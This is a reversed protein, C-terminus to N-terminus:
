AKKIPYISIQELDTSNSGQLADIHSTLGGNNENIVGRESSAASNADYRDLSDSLSCNQPHIYQRYNQSDALNNAGTIYPTGLTHLQISNRVGDYVLSFAAMQAGGIQASYGWRAWGVCISTNFLSLTKDQLTYFPEFDHFNTVFSSASGYCYFEYVYGRATFSGMRQVAAYRIVYHNEDYLYGDLNATPDCDQQATIFGQPLPPASTADFSQTAICNNADKVYATYSGAVLGTFTNSSHYSSGNISYTKAGTGGTAVITVTHTGNAQEVPTASTITLPTSPQTITVTDSEGSSYNSDSVEVYYDGAPLGTKTQSTAIEVNSSNKWSYNYGGSGGAPTCTVAGTSQGHCLVNTTVSATVTVPAPPPPAAGDACIDAGAITSIQAQTPAIYTGNIPNVGGVYLIGDWGFPRSRGPNRSGYTSTGGVFNALVMAEMTHISPIVVITDRSSSRSRNGEVAAMEIMNDPQSYGGWSGGTVGTSSYPIKVMEGAQNVGWINQLDIEGFLSHYPYMPGGHGGFKRRRWSTTGTLQYGPTVIAESQPVCSSYAVVSTDSANLYENGSGYAKVVITSNGDELTVDVYSAGPTVHTETSGNISYSWHHARTTSVNIRHTSM